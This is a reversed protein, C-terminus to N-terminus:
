KDRGLDLRMHQEIDHIRGEPIGFKDATDWWQGSAEVVDDIISKAVRGKLGMVSAAELLDDRTFGQTKGNLLMHHSDAGHHRPAYNFTLDYAPSLRWRGAQDMLFSLNKTHDDCNRNVINFTARRFIAGVADMGLGIDRACLAAEEYSHMVPRRFHYHCLAWLSQMHIKGGEDDRDFRRCMFHHRGSEEHIRFPPVDIGSKDALENYAAEIVNDWTTQGSDPDSSVDFKLLWHQFSPEAPCQGSRFEDTAPNWAVLAKPRAGGATSGMKIIDVLDDEDHPSKQPGQRESLLRMAQDALRNVARIASPSDQGRTRPEFELAGMGRRGIYLLREVPNLSDPERKQSVLWANIAKNGFVDPLSDAVLGPLGEFEEREDPSYRFVHPEPSLPMKVPSVELGSAIFEPEYQFAAVADDDNWEVIGAPQGWLLVKAELGGM